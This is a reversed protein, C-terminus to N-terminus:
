NLLSTILADYIELFECVTAARTDFTCHNTICVIRGEWNANIKMVLPINKNRLIKVKQHYLLWGLAFKSFFIPFIKSVKSKSDRLSTETLSLLFTMWFNNKVLLKFYHESIYCQIRLGVLSVNQKNRQKLSVSKWLELLVLSPTTVSGNYNM